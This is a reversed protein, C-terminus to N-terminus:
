LGLLEEVKSTIRSENGSGEYVKELELDQNLLIMYPIYGENLGAYYLGAYADDYPETGTGGALVPFEIDYDEVWSEVFGQSVNGSGQNNDILAHIIIFGDERHEEWMAEAGSAVDRCPSCWGASFDILIVYGYFQYLSVENGFQDVASFDPFVEGEAYDSGDVGAADAEDSFDPWQGSGFAWSFGNVPDTDGDIEAKDDWGDGDSDALDPNTGLAEEEGATLGDGDNDLTSPDVQDATDDGGDNGGNGGNGGEDADDICATTALLLLAATLTHLRM